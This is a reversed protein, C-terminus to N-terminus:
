KELASVAYALTGKWLVSEDFNVKANHLPYKEGEAGACLALMVSPVERTIYAFDESGGSSDKDTKPLATSLLVEKEDFVQGLAKYIEQVRNEDNILSPCGGGFSVSAKARFAKAIGKVIEEMRGKIFARVNEGFCRLTGEIIAEDAIANGARGGNFKGVTLVARATTPTEKAILAELALTIRAGVAIADIGNQPTAGHCAKGKIKITFYDASPASEGQAVILKGSPAIPLVHIMLAGNVGDLVGNQICDKAGELREEGAQFLFRVKRGLGNEQAKLLTVAGLLMAVHLDHGCAHMNGTKCAYGVGTKEQIPLADM